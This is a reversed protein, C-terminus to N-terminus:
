LTAPALRHIVRCRAAAKGSPLILEGELTCFRSTVAVVRAVAEMPEPLVMAPRVYNINFSIPVQEVTAPSAAIAAYRVARTILLGIAGGHLSGFNSAWGSDLQSTYIATTGDLRLGGRLYVDVPAPAIDAEWPFARHEVQPLAGRDDVMPRSPVTVSTCQSQGFAGGGDLMVGQAVGMADNYASNHSRVEVTGRAARCAQYAVEILISNSTWNASNINAMANNNDAIASLYGFPVTGDHELQEDSCRITATSCGSAHDWASEGLGLNATLDSAHGLPVHTTSPENIM